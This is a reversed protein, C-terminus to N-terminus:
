SKLRQLAWSRIADATQVPGGATTDLLHVGALDADKRSGWWRNFRTQRAIFHEECGQWAPRDRLHRELEREECVLALYHIAALGNRDHSSELHRPQVTGCLLVPRGAQNLQVILRMWHDWYRQIDAEDFNRLAALLVDSELVVVEPFTHLLFERATTKGAGSAGTLVFLPLWRFRAGHGCHACALTAWGPDGPHVPGDTSFAGCAACVHQVM